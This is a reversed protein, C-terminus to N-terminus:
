FWHSLHSIRFYMIQKDNNANTHKCDNYKGAMSWTTQYLGFCKVPVSFKLSSKRKKIYQSASELKSLGGHYPIGKEETFIPYFCCCLSQLRHWQNATPLANSKDHYDKISLGHLQM